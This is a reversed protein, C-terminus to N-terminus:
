TFWLENTLILLEDKILVNCYLDMVSVESYHSTSLHLLNSMIAKHTATFHLTSNELMRSEQQLVAREVLLSRIHQKNRALKNALADKIFQFSKWRADFDDKSVGHFLILGHYIQFFSM